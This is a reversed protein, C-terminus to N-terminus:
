SFFSTYVFDLLFYAPACLFIWIISYRLCIQGQYNYKVSSYDWVGWGLKLNVIFGVIYEISTILLGGFICSFILPTSTLQRYPGCLLLLCLGGAVAMTWHSRGRWFIEILVYICAGLAFAVLYFM